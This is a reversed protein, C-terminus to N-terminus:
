HKPVDDNISTVGAFAFRTVSYVPTTGLIARVLPRTVGSPRELSTKLADLPLNITITNTAVDVSGTVGIGPDPTYTDALFGNALHGAAFAPPGGLPYTMGAWVVDLPTAFRAGILM